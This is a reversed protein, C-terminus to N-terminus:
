GEGNTRAAPADCVGRVTDPLGRAALKGLPGSRDTARTGALAWHGLAVM